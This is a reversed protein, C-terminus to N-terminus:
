PCAEGFLALVLSLDSLSVCESADLDADDDFAPDGTCTGFASLLRSLDTLSRTRDGDIDGLCVPGSCTAEAITLDDVAAEVVSSEGGDDAIFRLRTLGLTPNIDRVRFTHEFWGGNAQPGTPGVTEVTTWAGGNVSMQVIFVDANPANGTTNSFWRWYRVIPDTGGTLDYEPSTLTTRGNDVDNEGLSIGANGDTVFCKNGANPTHDDGPQALTPEPNMRSWRGRTATDTAISTLWGSDAEMNDSALASPGVTTTFYVSPAAAPSRVTLGEATTAEVYYDIETGCDRAPLAVTQLYESADLPLAVFQGGPRVRRWLTASTVSSRFPLLKLEISAANDAPISAPTGIPWDILVGESLSRGLTLMAEYNERVTPQIESAPLIFGPPSAIPRLEITWSWLDRAGFTWDAFTGSALYLQYSPIPNYVAGTVGQIAQQIRGSVVQFTSEVPEPPVAAVYGIPSLILQSFSHFDIHLVLSPTAQIFNRMATSEPESFPATGRYTESTPDSSSGSELGWGVSWNRNLDVGFSGGANPRRNKRWLRSTSWSYTYGDPNVIPVIYFVFQDLLATVRADTNYNRVFQDAIYLPVMVAIWERAHQCGNFLLAPKGVVGGAGTIRIGRIQRGELSNGVVFTQALDPRLAALGNLSNQVTNYDQFNTFEGPGREAIMAAEADIMEQINEHIVQYSLGSDALAQMKDPTVRFPTTGLHGSCSWHDDSIARMRIMDEVTNVTVNVLKHNEYREPEQAFALPALCFALAAVCQSLRRTIGPM